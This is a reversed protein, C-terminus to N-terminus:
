DQARTVCDLDAQVREYNEEIREPVLQEWSRPLELLCHMRRDDLPYLHPMPWSWEMAVVRVLNLRTKPDLRWRWERARKGSGRM